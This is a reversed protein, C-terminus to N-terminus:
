DSGKLKQRTKKATHPKTNDHLIIVKEQEPRSTLQAVQLSDLQSCYLTSDLTTNPPLLEFYIVGRVDWWVSVNVKRPQLDGKPKPEPQQDRDVWQRKRTHNVYLVWKEDGTITTRLWNCRRSRSLLSHCM